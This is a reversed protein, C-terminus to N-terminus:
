MSTTAIPKRNKSILFLLHEVLQKGDAAVDFSFDSSHWRLMLFRLSGTLIHAMEAAPVGETFADNKQGDKVILTLAKHMAAILQQIGVRIGPSYKLLGDSFVATLFHPNKVLLGIQAGFLLRLREEPPVDTSFAIPMLRAEMKSRLFELLGAIIDEKSKYHRYLASEVFGVRKAISKTTLGGIGEENLIAGAAELIELQRAKLEM